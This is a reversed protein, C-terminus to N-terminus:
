KKVEATANAKPANAKPADAKPADAKPAEAPKIVAEIKVWNGSVLRSQYFGLIREMPQRTVIPFAVMKALLEERNLTKGAAGSLIGIIQKCQLPMKTAEELEKLLIFKSGAKAVKPARPAKEDGPKGPVIVTKPAMPNPKVEPAAKKERDVKADATKEM